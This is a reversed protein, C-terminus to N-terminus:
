RQKTPKYDSCVEVRSVTKHRPDPKVWLRWTIHRYKTSWSDIVNQIRTQGFPQPAYGNCWAMEVDDQTALTEHEAEAAFAVEVYYTSDLPMGIGCSEEITGDELMKINHNDCDSDTFQVPLFVRMDGGM